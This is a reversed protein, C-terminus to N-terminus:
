AGAEEPREPQDLAETYGCETNGCVARPQKAGKVTLPAGCEPCKKGTPRGWSMFSCEPNKECGFYKRGKKTKKYLVKGGCFPCDIGAEELLTKTSMCDPFGPCALFRGYRGMKIVMMRGCKDCPVDTVEDRIEVHEITEAVHKVKEELDPYFSRIIDKWFIEGAEVRDLDDEMSATFGTDIVDEFNGVMLKNVVEGLETPYLIKNERSIYGRYVINTITTSYTSPRGIGREEMEKVMSGESYRGPPQTFHQASRCEHLKVEGNENMDPMAVETGNEENKANVLLYGDFVLKSGSARFVTESAGDTKKRATIKVASTEYVAPPMLSSVFREWILKYLKYQDRSLSDKLSEPTRGALTPRITEHADQSRSKSKHEPKENVQYKNGYNNKIFESAEAFASDSVRASDTRIYSVLGIMGEDTIEIGEYLQQAILMTKSTPFNLLRSADQQLTSTIYPPPAKKIRTGCKIENIMCVSNKVAELVSDVEAKNKLDKHHATFKKGSETIFVADLTWYEDPIFQEIEEERECILKLAVSQVRGASLGKKVKQWLLPSLKYGVVRDLVRRAQQADVLRMDIGRSESLSKIVAAPTIENFTIRKTKKVDLGLAYILHWSIAEGERDPDTALFVNDAAKVKKRLKKLIEGKGRITIYKPDYDNEASVGMESKPLDRVHGVCAEINFDAGLIKELTKIKHPSEIIMLNQAM